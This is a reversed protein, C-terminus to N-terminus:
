NIFESYSKIIAEASNVGMLWPVNNPTGQMILNIPTDPFFVSTFNGDEPLAELSPSFQPQNLAIDWASANRLCLFLQLTDDVELCNMTLGLKIATSRPEMNFIGPLIMTGSLCIVGSIIGKTMPSILHGHARMAGSSSGFAVVKFPDGGFDANNKVWRLAEV